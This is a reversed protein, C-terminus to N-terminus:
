GGRAYPHEDAKLLRRRTKPCGVFVTSPRFRRLRASGWPPLQQADEIVHGDDARQNFRRM